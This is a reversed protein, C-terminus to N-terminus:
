RLRPEVHPEVYNERKDSSFLEYIVLHRNQTQKSFFIGIMSSESSPDVVAVTETGGEVYM